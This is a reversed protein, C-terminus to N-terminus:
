RFEDYEYPLLRFQRVCICIGVILGIVIAVILAIIDVNTGAFIFIAAISTAAVMSGVSTLIVYFIKFFKNMLFALIVLCVISILIGIIKTYPMGVAVTIKHVYDYSLLWSRIFQGLFVYGLGGGVIAMAIGHFKACVLLLVIGCVSAIVTAPNILGSINSNAFLEGAVIYGILAGSVGAIVPLVFRFVKYSYRSLLVLLVIAAIAVPIAFGQLSDAVGLVASIIKPLMPVELKNIFDIGIIDDIDTFKM